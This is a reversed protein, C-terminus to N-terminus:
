SNLSRVGLHARFFAIAMALIERTRSDDDRHDFGHTGSPHNVLTVPANRELAASVFQDISANVGPIEDRGARAIFLPPMGSPNAVLQRLPSFKQATEATIGAEALNVHETDLFSYFAALCVVGPLRGRLLPALMPGGGSFTAVAVREGDLGLRAGDRRLMELLARVDAAGEEYQRRPYRLRHNFPIAALGSAALLRGLSTYIGWAKTNEAGGAVLLVAPPRGAQGEEPPLYVDAALEMGGVREYVVDRRMRVRDMGPLTMVVTATAPDPRAPLSTPQGLGAPPVLLLLLAFAKRM